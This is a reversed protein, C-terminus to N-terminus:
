GIAARREIDSIRPRKRKRRVSPILWSWLDKAIDFSTDDRLNGRRNAHTRAGHAQSGHIFRKDYLMELKFHNHELGVLLISSL